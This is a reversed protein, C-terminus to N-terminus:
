PWDDRAVGNRGKWEYGPAADLVLEEFRGRKRLWNDAGPMGAVANASGM